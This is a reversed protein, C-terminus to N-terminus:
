GFPLRGLKDPNLIVFLARIRGGDGEVTVAARTGEYSWLVAPRGNIETAVGSGPDFSLKRSLGCVFRVVNEAGRIPNLAAKVRGGGDTYAIADPAFLASLRAADAVRAAETFRALLDRHQERSVAFRPREARVRERARSVLKRCAPESKGIAAALDAYAFDFADRLLLAAREEPALRELVHLLALSVDSALEAGTTPFDAGFSRADDPSIPEPLWPGLYTERRAKAARLADIAVRTATTALWAGPDRIDDVDAMRWRLWTEQVVDEAAAMEGLMRYGVGLLRPRFREFTEVDDKM